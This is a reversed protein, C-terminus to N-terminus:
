VEVPRLSFQGTTNKLVLVAEHGATVGAANYYPEGDGDVGWRVDLQVTFGGGTTDVTFDPAFVTEDAATPSPDAADLDLIDAKVHFHPPVTPVPATAFWLDSSSGSSEYAYVVGARGVTRDVAFQHYASQIGGTPGFLDGREWTEGGDHSLTLRHPLGTVDVDRFADLLRGDDLLIPRPWGSADDLVKVPATWTDGDDDSLVVWRDAASAGIVERLVVVLRGSPLRVPGPEAWSRSTGPGDAVTAGVTWNSGGDDSYVAAVSNDDSSANRGYQFTWIRGTLPDEILPSGGRLGFSFASPLTVPSSWTAGNDTSVSLFAGATTGSEDDNRRGGHFLMRGDSLTLLSGERWDYGGGTFVVSRSTWTAGRDTSRRLFLQGDTSTHSTGDRYITVYDGNAAVALAPFGPFTDVDSIVQGDGVTPPVTTDLGGGGEGPVFLGAADDFVPVQGDAYGSPDIGIDSPKWYGSSM